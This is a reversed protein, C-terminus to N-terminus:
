AVLNKSAQKMPGPRTWIVIRLPMLINWRFAIGSMAYRMLEEKKGEM